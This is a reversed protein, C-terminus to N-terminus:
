GANVTETESLDLKSLCLNVGQEQDRASQSRTNTKNLALFLPPSGSWQGNNNENELSKIPSDNFFVQGDM